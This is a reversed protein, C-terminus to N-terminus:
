ILFQRPYVERPREAVAVQMPLKKASHVAQRKRRWHCGCFTGHCRVCLFFSLRRIPPTSNKGAGEGAFCMGRCFFCLTAQSREVLSFIHRRQRACFICVPAPCAHWDSGKWGWWDSGSGCMSKLAPAKRIVHFTGYM